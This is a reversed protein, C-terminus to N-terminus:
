VGTKSDIWEDLKDRNVFVRGRSYGIRVLAPFEPDRMIKDLSAKCIGLYFAAEERTLLKKAKLEDHTYM